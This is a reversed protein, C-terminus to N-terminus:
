EEVRVKIWGLESVPEGDRDIRVRRSKPFTDGTKYRYRSMKYADTNVLKAFEDKNKQIRDGLTKSSWGGGWGLQLIFENDGVDSIIQHSQQWMKYKSRDLKDNELRALTFNNIVRRFREVFRVQKDDWGMAGRQQNLLYTDLTLGSEFTVNDAVAELEILPGNSKNHRNLPVPPQWAKVNILQLNKYSVPQSDSVQIARLLDYNPATKDDPNSGLLLNREYKRAAFRADKDLRDVKFEEDRTGFLVYLLATRIAGKLSSGPIYPRDWPNKIQEQIESGSKTSKPEGKMVYRFIPDNEDYEQRNPYLLGLGVDASDGIRQKFNRDYLAGALAEDNVVFTKGNQTVYDYNRLLKQGTGIHLPTLTTITLKYRKPRNM